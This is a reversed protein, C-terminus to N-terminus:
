VLCMYVIDFNGLQCIMVAHIIRQKQCCFSFLCVSLLILSAIQSLVLKMDLIHVDRNSM